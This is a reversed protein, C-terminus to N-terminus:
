IKSTDTIGAYGKKDILEVLEMGGSSIFKGKNFVHVEDANLYRYLRSYHTIICLSIKSRLENLLECIIKLGDVDLGSDIEDLIAYRAKLVILQAIEFRKKEGGSFGDNVYRHLFSEQLKLLNFIRKIEAIWDRMREIKGHIAVYSSKLFNLVTVGPITIPNQSALFIGMRARAVTDLDKISKKDLLIDGATIKYMPNGIITNALTSKGSGNPGMICVVKQPALELYVRDIIQEDSETSVSLSHVELM